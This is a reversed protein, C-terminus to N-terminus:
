YKLGDRFPNNGAIDDVRSLGGSFCWDAIATARESVTVAVVFFGIVGMEM